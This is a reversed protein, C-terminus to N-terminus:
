DAAKKITPTTLNSKIESAVSPSKAVWLLPDIQEALSAITPHEFLMRLPLEFRFTM